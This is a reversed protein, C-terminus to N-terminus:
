KVYEFIRVQPITDSSSPVTIESDYRLAFCKLEELPVPSVFPNNSVINYNGSPQGAIFASAAEYTDFPQPSKGRKYQVGEYEWWTWSFVKCDGPGPTV